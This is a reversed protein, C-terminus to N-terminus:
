GRSPQIRPSRTRTSIATSVKQATFEAVQYPNMANPVHVDVQITTNGAVAPTPSVARLSPGDAGFTNTAQTLTGIPVNALGLAARAVKDAMNELGIAFGGGTFEGLEMTDKSPSGIHLASKITNKVSNAIDRAKAIVSGAMSTIGNLLGRIADAGASVLSNRLGSIRSIIGSVIGAVASVAGGIAGRITSVVSNFAGRVTAIINRIRNFTNVANSIGASIVARVTNIVASVVARVANFVTSVVARIIALNTQFVRVLFPWVVSIVAKIINIAALVQTKVSNFVANVINRFTTSKQYALVLIAVLAIIALVVLVIPNLSMVINLAAQAATMIGTAVAGAIMAIRSAVAAATSVVTTAAARINALSLANTAAAWIAQAAGAVRAAAASALTAVSNAVTAATARVWGAAYMVQLRLTQLMSSNWIANAAAGLKLATAIRGVGGVFSAVIGGIKVLAGMALLIGGAWLAWQVINKQTSADAGALGGVMSDLSGVFSRISPLLVTGLNIALTEASGKLKEIDGSVNDLRKAAVSEATVKGMAAAMNNFGGKGLEAAIAASRIADTGFLASLTQIKQEQTAGKLATQLTGMVTAMDKVKGNADFFQNSMVGTSAVLKEYEKKQKASGIASKSQSASLEILQRTLTNADTGLPKIGKSRLVEATKSTNLQVLGLERFLATSKLTHPVLNIFMTKLSTGADSGVIGANGLLAIAVATDKFSFGVTHAVAGVQSLSQGFQGVDIASANAAGAILDAVKPLDEAALNFQNMANSAITAAQPLDIEGAAALAVTADAAGGLVESVSLGAKVLESMAESADTAGFATDKGIQLAKARVKEMEKETSGSVAAIGSLSKEFKVASNVAVLLGAAIIGGAAGAVTGAKQVDKGAKGGRKGLSDLDSGAKQAAGGKYLIEIIGRATGLNYGM